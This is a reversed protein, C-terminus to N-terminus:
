GESSVDAPPEAASEPPQELEGIRSRLQQLEADLQATQAKLAALDEGSSPAPAAAPVAGPGQGRPGLNAAAWRQWGTLGTAHFRNRRGRRRGGGMGGGRGVGTGSTDGCYGYGRGTLPGVGTPGTRDGGPM